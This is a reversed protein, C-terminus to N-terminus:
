IDNKNQPIEKGDKYAATKWVAGDQRLWTWIGQRKGNEFTGEGLKEGSDYYQTWAGTEKGDKMEGSERVNGSEYRYIWRGSRKGNDFAGSSSVAGTGKFFTQWNGSEAGNDYKGSFKKSGDEYFGNWEGNKKGMAYTGKLMLSGNPYYYTWDGDLKGRNFSGITEIQGNENWWKWPGHRFFKPNLPSQRNVICVACGLQRNEDDLAYDGGYSACADAEKGAIAGYDYEITLWKKGSKLYYKWLGNPLPNGFAPVFSGQARKAGDAFFQTRQPSRLTYDDEFEVGGSHFFVQTKDTEVGKKYTAKRAIRGDTYYQAANGDYVGGSIRVVSALVGNSFWERETVDNGGASYQSESKPNGSEFRSKWTGTKKGNLFHAEFRPKGNHWYAFFDGTDNEIVSEHMVTGDENLYKISGQPIGNEAKYEALLGGDPRYERVTGHENGSANVPVIRWLEGSPYYEIFQNVAGEGNKCYITMRDHAFNIYAPIEANGGNECLKFVANDSIKGGANYNVTIWPINNNSYLQAKGVYFMNDDDPADTVAYSELIRVGQGNYWETWYANEPLNLEKPAPKDYDTLSSIMGPEAFRKWKGVPKGDKYQGLLVPLCQAYEEYDGDPKGNKYNAASVLIGVPTWNFVPGNLVDNEYYELSVPSNGPASLRDSYGERKGDAFWGFGAANEPAIDLNINKERTEPIDYFLGNKKGNIFCGVCQNRSCADRKWLGGNRLCQASNRIDPAKPPKEPIYYLVYPDSPPMEVSDPDSIDSKQEAEAGFVAQAFAQRPPCAFPLIAASALAISAWKKIDNTISQYQMTEALSTKRM